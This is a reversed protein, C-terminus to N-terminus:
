DTKLPTKIFPPPESTLDGNTIYLVRTRDRDDDAFAGNWRKGDRYEGVALLRGDLWWWSWLGDKKGKRYQGEALKRGNRTWHSCPGDRVGKRFTTLSYSHKDLDGHVYYWDRFTGNYEQGKRYEGEGILEGKQNWERAPGHRTNDLLTSESM